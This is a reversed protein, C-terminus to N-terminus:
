SQRLHRKVFNRREEDSSKNWDENALFQARQKTVGKGSFAYWAETYKEHLTKPVKKYFAPKYDAPYTEDIPTSM